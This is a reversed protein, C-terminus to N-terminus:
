RSSCITARSLVAEASGAYPNPISGGSNAAAGVVDGLPIAAIAEMQGPRCQAPSRAAAKPASAAPRCRWRVLPSFRWLPAGARPRLGCSMAQRGDRPGTRRLGGGETILMGARRHPSEGNISFVYLTSGRAPFDTSRRSCWRAGGVGAYVAVYQRGDPGLYSMPQGIIGSGLKHSWLIEGTHADVARFWGDVTGYFVLDGATALAGSMVMFKEKIAWVKKGAVPDWAIFEGWNGGPAPM